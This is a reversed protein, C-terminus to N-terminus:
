DNAEIEELWSTGKRTARHATVKQSGQEGTGLQSQLMAVIQRLKAREREIKDAKADLDALAQKADQLATEYSNTM